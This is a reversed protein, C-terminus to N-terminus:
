VEMRYLTELKTFGLRELNAERINTHEGICTIVHDAHGKGFDIFYRLLHFAGKGYMLEQRLIRIESDFFSRTFTAALFGIPEDGNFAVLLVHKNLFDSIPFKKWDFKDGYLQNAAKASAAIFNFIDPTLDGWEIRKVTCAM